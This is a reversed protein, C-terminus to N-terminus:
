PTVGDDSCDMVEAASQDHSRDNTCLLHLSIKLDLPPRKHKTLEWLVFRGKMDHSNQESIM